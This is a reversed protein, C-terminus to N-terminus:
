PLMSVDDTLPSAKANAIKATCVTGNHVAIHQTNSLSHQEAILAVDAKAFLSRQQDKMCAM